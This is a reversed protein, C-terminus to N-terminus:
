RILSRRLMDNIESYWVNMSRRVVVGDHMNFVVLYVQFVDIMYGSSQGNIFLIIFIIIIICCHLGNLIQWGM